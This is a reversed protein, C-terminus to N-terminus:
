FRQDDLLEADVCVFDRRLFADDLVEVGVREITHMERHTQFVGEAELDGVAIEVAQDRDGVDDAVDLPM